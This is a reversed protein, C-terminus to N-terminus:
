VEKEFILDMRVTKGSAGLHTPIYGVYRWGNAAYENIIERHATCKASGPAFNDLKVDVYEYRKMTM